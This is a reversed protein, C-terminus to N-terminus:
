STQPLRDKANKGKSRSKVPRVNGTEQRHHLACLRRPVRSRHRETVKGAISFGM